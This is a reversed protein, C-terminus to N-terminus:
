KLGIVLLGIVHTVVIVALMIFLHELIIHLAPMKRERAIYYSFLSLLVSGWVIDIGVAWGLPVIFLPILFTLAVFFKSGLTAFTAVWVEKETKRNDVEESVHIGLSDSLADAVAISIVGSLVVYFSSSGTYLGMIIGLTTIVGSTLGFGFGKQFAHKM